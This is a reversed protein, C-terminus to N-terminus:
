QAAGVAQSQRLEEFQEFLEDIVRFRRGVESQAAKMRGLCISADDLRKEDLASQTDNEAQIAAQVALRLEDFTGNM